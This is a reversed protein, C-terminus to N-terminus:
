SVPLEYGNKFVEGDSVSLVCRMVGTPQDNEDLADVVVGNDKLAQLTVPFREDLVMRGSDVCAKWCAVLEINGTLFAIWDDGTDYCFFM